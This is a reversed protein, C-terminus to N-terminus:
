MAIVIKKSISRMNRSMTKESNSVASVATKKSTTWSRPALCASIKRANPHLGTRGAFIVLLIVIGFGTLATGSLYWESVGFRTTCFAAPAM